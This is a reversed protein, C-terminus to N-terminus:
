AARRRYEVIWSVPIWAEGDEAFDLVLASKSPHEPLQFLDKARAFQNM